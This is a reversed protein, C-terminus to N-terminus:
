IGTETRRANLAKEVDRALEQECDPWLKSYSAYLSSNKQMQGHQAPYNTEVYRLVQLCFPRWNKNNTIHNFKATLPMKGVGRPQRYCCEMALKILGDQDEKSDVPGLVDGALSAIFRPDSVLQAIFASHDNLNSSNSM